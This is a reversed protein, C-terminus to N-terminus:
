QKIRVLTAAVKQDDKSSQWEIKGNKVVGQSSYSSSGDAQHHSFSLRITLQDDQWSGAQAELLTFNPLIRKAEDAPRFNFHFHHYDDQEVSGYIEYDETGLKSTVHAFGDFARKDEHAGLGKRKRVRRSAKQEREAESLPEVIQLILKKQIGNPDKFIGQWEGVLLKTNPDTSYAWPRQYTDLWYSGYYKCEYVGWSLLVLGVVFLLLKTGKSM